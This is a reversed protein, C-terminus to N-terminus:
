PHPDLKTVPNLEIAAAITDLVVDIATMVDHNSFRLVRYGMSLLFETRTVDRARAKDAGHQEGDVEIILKVGHVCFDVIYPGLSVQRRFHSGEVPLRWRLAKWLRREPETMNLRMKKAFAAQHPLMNTRDATKNPM